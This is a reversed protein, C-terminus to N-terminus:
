CAGSSRGVRGMTTSSACCVIACTAIAARERISDRAANMARPSSKRSTSYHFESCQRRRRERLCIRVRLRAGARPRDVDHERARSACGSEARGRARRLRQRGLRAVRTRVGERDTAARQQVPHLDIPFGSGAIGVITDIQPFELGYVDRWADLYNGVIHLPGPVDEIKKGVEFVQRHKGELKDLWSLDWPAAPAEAAELRGEAGSFLPTLATAGAATAVAALFSRRPLSRERM